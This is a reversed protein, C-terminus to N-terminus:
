PVVGREYDAKIIGFARKEKLLSDTFKSINCFELYLKYSMFLVRKQQTLLTYGLSM